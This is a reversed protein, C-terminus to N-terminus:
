TGLAYAVKGYRKEALPRMQGMRGMQRMKRAARVYAAVLCASRSRSLLPKM